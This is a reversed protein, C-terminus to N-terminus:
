SVLGYDIIVFGFYNFLFLYLNVVLIVDLWQRNTKKPGKSPTPHNPQTNEEGGTGDVTETQSITISLPEGARRKRRTTPSTPNSVPMPLDTTPFFSVQTPLVCLHLCKQIPYFGVIDAACNNCVYPKWLQVLSVKSRFAAHLEHHRFVPGATIIQCFM